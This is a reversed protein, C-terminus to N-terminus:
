HISRNYKYAAKIFGGFVDHSFTFGHKLYFNLAEDNGNSIYVFILDIDAANELWEMSMDFLKTGLKLHRYQERLYLNNVCGIKQPLEVWDPYFGISNESLPAWEPIANRDEIKIYDITSFVYGIPIDCDKTIIVQSDFANEYNKKMRTEFNMSNFNEPYFTAKSQQFAMLEDCLERCPEIDRNHIIEITINKM